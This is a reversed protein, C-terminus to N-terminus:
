PRSGSKVLLLHCFFFFFLNKWIVEGVQCCLAVTWPLTVNPLQVTLRHEATSGNTVRRVNREEKKINHRFLFSEHTHQTRAPTHQATLEIVSSHIILKVLAWFFFIEIPFKIDKEWLCKQPQNRIDPSLQRRERERWRVLSFTHLRHGCYHIRFHCELLFLLLIILNNQYYLFLFLIPRVSHVRSQHQSTM